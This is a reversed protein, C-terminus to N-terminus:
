TVVEMEESGKRGFLDLDEDVILGILDIVVERDKLSGLFIVNLNRPETVVFAKLHSAVATHTKNLNFFRWFWDSRTTGLNSWCHLNM